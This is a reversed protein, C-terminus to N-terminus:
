AAARAVCQFIRATTVYTDDRAVFAALEDHVRRVQDATALGLEVIADAVTLLTLLQVQKADGRMGGPQVVTVDVHEFGARHMMLPMAQGARPDAGRRRMAEGLWRNMTDFAPVPPACVAADVDVDEVVLAGGPRLWTAVRTLLAERRPVHSLLFRAYVVDYSGPGVELEAVDAVDFRANAVGLRRAEDAALHVVVPDFDVGVVEAAPAMSALMRTVDGGGSGLDLITRAEAVGARELLDRTTAALASSLVRLRDRGRTGGDIVYTSRRCTADDGADVPRDPLTTM